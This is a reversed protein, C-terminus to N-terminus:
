TPVADFFERLSRVREITLSLALLVFAILHLVFRIAHGTEWRTRWANWDFPLM